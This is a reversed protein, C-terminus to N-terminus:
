KRSGSSCTVAQTASDSADSRAPQILDYRACVSQGHALMVIPGVGVVHDFADLTDASAEVALGADAHPEPCALQRQMMGRQDMARRAVVVVVAAYSQADAENGRMDPRQSRHPRGRQ